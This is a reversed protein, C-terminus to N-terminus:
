SSKKLSKVHKKLNLKGSSNLVFILISISLLALTVLNILITQNRLTPATVQKGKASVLVNKPMKRGFLSFPITVERDSSGYPPIVEIYGNSSLSDDFFIQPALSYVAYMNLNKFTVVFRTSTLPLSKQRKITIELDNTRQSPLQGFSVFVDKQPNPGLKYSGPPYPLSDSLGHIVFTFHRLDLKSFYDSGGTTSGWTPDVPTWVGADKNWYEPWSHLVDAVLSLPQIEPNETYAFGNIERAPIGAARSLAIFLDTYEMCIASQYNVLADKAGYRQINPSVRDYDYQLTKVVYEYIRKPTQLQRAITIIEPDDSQWYKTPTKNNALNISSTPPLKVPSSFIQVSGFVNVDKKEKPKLLYTAIWNGDPDVSISDFAPEISQYYMKQFDTDPPLAIDTSSKKSLPNELHYNISFTFVQFEGFGASIGNETISKRNFLYLTKEGTSETSSPEPSMFALQGFTSPVKIDLEYTQFSDTDSLKPIQIEKVDGTKQVFSTDTFAVSFTRSKGEGVIQDDFTIDVEYDSNLRTVKYSPSSNDYTVQINQPNLSNLKLKYSQAYVDDRVNELNITFVADTQGNEQINYTVKANVNFDKQAYVISPLIFFLIGLFVFTIKKRM